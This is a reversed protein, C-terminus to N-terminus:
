CWRPVCTSRRSPTSAPCATRPTTPPSLRRSPPPDPAPASGSTCACVRHNQRRADFAMEGEIIGDRGHTDCLFSELRTACWKVPRGTKQAALLLAAYDPYTLAKMGFGGGVDYTLVRFKEVPLHFYQTALMQRVLAVGQTAAILTYRGTAADWSALAARPEMASPAVRTDILRVREVHTAATFARASAATDGDEWDLALNGPADEWIRAAGPAMASEVSAAAPLEQYDVDVLEAADQAAPQSEAIVLAVAEGVYRIKEMALPYQPAAYMPKGDRGKSPISPVLGGMGAAKVDAGTLVALVGPHKLAATTDIGRLIAHGQPARVFAAYAQGLLAVDDTYRGGGTILPRDESRLAARSSGYRHPTEPM